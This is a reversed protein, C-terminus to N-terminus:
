AHSRVMSSSRGALSETIGDLHSLIVRWSAKYFRYSRTEYDRTYRKPSKDHTQLLDDRVHEAFKEGVVYEWSLAEKECKAAFNASFGVVNVESATPTGTRTFDLRGYDAGVRLQVPRIGSLELLNNLSNETADLAFAGAAMAFAVDVWPQSSSDGFCAFLGDGRLGLVYGGYDNVVLAVQSLVAQALRTVEEPSDWFSRATFQELDIFVSAAECTGTEGLGLGQFDPHGMAPFSTAQERVRKREASLAIKGVSELQRYRNLVGLGFERSRQAM